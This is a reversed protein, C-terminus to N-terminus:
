KNENTKMDAGCNPCYNSKSHKCGCVDCVYTGNHNDTWHGTHHPKVSPMEDIKALVFSLNVDLESPMYKVWEKKIVEKLAERSVCDECPQKRREFYERAEEEEIAEWKEYQERAEKDKLTEIALDVAEYYPADNIPDGYGDSFECYSTVDELYRIAEENTM